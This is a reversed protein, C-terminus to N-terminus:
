RAPTTQWRHSTTSDLLQTNEYKQNTFHKAEQGCDNCLLKTISEKQTVMLRQRQYRSRPLKLPKYNFPKEMPFTHFCKCAGNSGLVSELQLAKQKIMDPM